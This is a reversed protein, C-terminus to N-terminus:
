SILANLVLQKPVEVLLLAPHTSIGHAFVCINLPLSTHARAEGKSGELPHLQPTLPQPM